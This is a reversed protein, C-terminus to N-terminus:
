ASAKPQRVKILGKAEAPDIVKGKRLIEVRGNRALNVVQQRVANLYKRWVDPPDSARKRGDAFQRAIADPSVSEGRATAALISAVIPDNPSDKPTVGDSTDNDSQDTMNGSM